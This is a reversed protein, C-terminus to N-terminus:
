LLKRHWSADGKPRPGDCMLFCDSRIESCLCPGIIRFSNRDVAVSRSHPQQAKACVLALGPAAVPWALLVIPMGLEVWVVIGGLVTGLLVPVIFPCLVVGVAGNGLVVVIGPVVVVGLVIGVCGPVVGSTVGFEGDVVGFAFGLEVIGGSVAAGGAFLVIGGAFV